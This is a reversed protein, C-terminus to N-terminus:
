EEGFPILIIVDLFILHAPCAARMPSFLFAYLTKTPFGSPFLGSLHGLRLHVFVIFISLLSISPTTHVPNVQSLIPVLPLFNHVHYYVSPNWLMKPFEQTTSPRAPESSPSLEMTNTKAETQRRGKHIHERCGDSLLCPPHRPAPGSMTFYCIGKVLSDPDM